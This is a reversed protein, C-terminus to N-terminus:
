MNLLQGYGEIKIRIGILRLLDWLIAQNTSVVPKRLDKELADIVSLSPLDTACIFAGDSEPTICDKVLRYAVSTPLKVVEQPTPAPDLTKMGTINFGNEEAFDFLKENVEKRFPSAIAVNEIELEKLGRIMATAASTVPKGTNKNLERLLKKDWELGHYFSTTLCCYSICDVPGLKFGNEIADQRMVEMYDVGPLNRKEPRIGVKHGHITIGKPIVMYLEPEM